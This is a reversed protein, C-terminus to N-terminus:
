YKVKELVMNKAGSNMINIEEKIFKLLYENLNLLEKSILDNGLTSINNLIWLSELQIESNKFDFIFLALNHFFDSKCNFLSNLIESNIAIKSIEKRFTKLYYKIKSKDEIMEKKIIFQYSEQLLQFNIKTYENENNEVLESHIKEDRSLNNRRKHSEIKNNSIKELNLNNFYSVFKNKREEM